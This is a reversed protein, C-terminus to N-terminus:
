VRGLYIDPRSRAWSIVRDDSTLYIIQNSKALEVLTQFAGDLAEDDLNVLADDFFLPAMGNLQRAQAVVGVLHSPKISHQSAQLRELEVRRQGLVARALEVSRVVSATERRHAELSAVARMAESRAGAKRVTANLRASEMEARNRQLEGLGESMHNLTATLEPHLPHLVAPIVRAGILLRGVQDDPDRGFFERLEARLAAEVVALDVSGLQERRQILQSLELQVRDLEAKAAAIRQSPVQARSHGWDVLPGPGDLIERKLELAAEGREDSARSGQEDLVLHLAQEIISGGSRSGSSEVQCARDYEARAMSLRQEASGIAGSLGSNRDLSKRSNLENWRRSLDAAYPDLATQSTVADLIESLRGVTGQQVLGAALLQSILARRRALTPELENADVRVLHQAKPHRNARDIDLEKELTALLVRGAEHRLAAEGAGEIPEDAAPEPDLSDLRGLAESAAAEHAALTQEAAERTLNARQLADEADAVRQAVEQRYEAPVFASEDLDEATESVDVPEFIALTELALGATTFGTPGIESLRGNSVARVQLGADVDELSTRWSDLMRSRDSPGTSIVNVGDRLSMELRTSGDLLFRRLRVSMSRFESGVGYWFCM